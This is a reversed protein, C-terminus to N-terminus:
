GTPPCTVGPICPTVCTVSSDCCAYWPWDCVGQKENFHLGPPCEVECARGSNCKYFLDCRHHPLLVPKQPNVAPCLANPTCYEPCLVCDGPPPAQTPPAPTPPAPTPPAPTPPAPTPPAPTPPAPTPPAPTPGPPCTVGPICPERCVVSSDCCALFPWDCVGKDKNFHLGAPCDQVCPKGAENCQYFKACNPHDFINVISCRPDVYSECNGDDRNQCQITADCCALAPLDCNRTLTSFHLGPPCDMECGTGANCTIFKSCNTLHPLHLAHTGDSAPCRSDVPCGCLNCTAAYATAWFLALFTFGILKM